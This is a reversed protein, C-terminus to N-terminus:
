EKNYYKNELSLNRLFILNYIILYKSLSSVKCNSERRKKEEEKERVGPGQFETYIGGYVMALEVCVRVCLGM